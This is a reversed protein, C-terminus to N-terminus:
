QLGTIIETENVNYTVQSFQRQMQTLQQGSYHHEEYRTKLFVRFEVLDM